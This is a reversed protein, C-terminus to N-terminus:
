KKRKLKWDKYKKQKEIDNLWNQYEESNVYDEWTFYKRPNLVPPRFDERGVSIECMQVDIAKLM